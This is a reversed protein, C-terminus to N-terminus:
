FSVDVRTENVLWMGGSVNARGRYPDKIFYGTVLKAVWEQTFMNYNTNERVKGIESVAWIEDGLRAVVNTQTQTSSIVSMTIGFVISAGSSALGLGVGLVTTLVPYSGGSLAQNIGSVRQHTNLVHVCRTDRLRSPNAIVMKNDRLTILSPGSQARSFYNNYNSLSRCGSHPRLQPLAIIRPDDM